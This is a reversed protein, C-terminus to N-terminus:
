GVHDRTHVRFNEILCGKCIPEDSILFFYEDMIPEGCYDCVPLRELQRDQEAAHREADAVPDDTYFFGM